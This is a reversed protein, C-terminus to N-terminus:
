QFGRLFALLCGVEGRVQLLPQAAGTDGGGQEESVFILYRMTLFM